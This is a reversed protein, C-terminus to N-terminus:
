QDIHMKKKGHCSILVMLGDYRNPSESGNMKLNAELENARSKLLEILEPKTWFAKNKQYDNHNYPYEPYIQYNLKSQGFLQIANTVDRRIGLLNGLIEDIDPKIPHSEYLGIAILIVLPNEICITKAKTIRQQWDAYRHRQLLGIGLFKSRLIRKRKKIINIM